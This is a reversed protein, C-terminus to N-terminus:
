LIRDENYLYFRCDSLCVLSWCSVNLVIIIESEDHGEMM